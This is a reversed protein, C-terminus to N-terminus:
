VFYTLVFDSHLLYHILFEQRRETKLEQAHFTGGEPQIDFPFIRLHRRFDVEATDLCKFLVEKASWHLLLSWTDTDRYLSTVEDARMYKAAVRHVREGYQEIDIGVPTRGLIVAVYGKTHSISVYWSGDELYPKGSARYCVRKHEGLLAHLLVRVSLWEQRRHPATFREEAERCLSTGNLLTQLEDPSEDMRWVGWLCSESTQKLLLSM